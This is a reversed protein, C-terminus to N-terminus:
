DLGVVNELVAVLLLPPHPPLPPLLLYYCVGAVMVLSLPYLMIVMCADAMTHVRKMSFLGM